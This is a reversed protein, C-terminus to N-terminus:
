YEIGKRSGIGLRFPHKIEKMETVLHATEIIEGPVNRGTLVLEVRDPKKALFDLVEQVSILQFYLANNIEDLIVIDTEGSLMVKEAHELAKRALDIDEPKVGGRHIFGPRGYSFVEVEPSLRKLGTIEGYNQGTKMFQIVVVKFGHGAARVALGFAATSKGKSNGTYVQILGRELQPREM